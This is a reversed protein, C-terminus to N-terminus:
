RTPPPLILQDGPHIGNRAWPNLRYVTDLSHGFYNALNYLADGRRIVYIWCDPQNPCATLYQYRDSTPRPTPEPTPEPTPAPTPAPTPPPTPELTPPPTPPPTAQPTPEPTPASTVALSPGPSPLGTAGAVQTGPTQLVPATLGGRAVVFAFSLAASAVLLLGSLLIPSSPRRARVREVATEAQARLAGRLYRPCDAHAATLCVLEQQRLSQPKADGFAACRNVYDPEELPVTLSGDDLTGRLFPCTTVFPSRVDVMPLLPSPDVLDAGFAAAGVPADPDGIQPEPSAHERRGEDV